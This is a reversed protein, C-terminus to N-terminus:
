LCSCAATMGINQFGKRPGQLITAFTKGSNNRTGGGAAPAARCTGAAARAPHVGRLPGAALARPSSLGRSWELAGTTKPHRGAEKEQTFSSISDCAQGWGM